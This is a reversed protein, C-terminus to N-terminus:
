GRRPSTITTATIVNPPTVRTHCALWAINTPAVEVPTFVIAAAVTGFAVPSVLERGHVAM